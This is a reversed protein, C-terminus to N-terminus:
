RKLLPLYYIAGLGVNVIACGVAYWGPAAGPPLWGPRHAIDVLAHVVFAAALVGLAQRPDRVLVVFALALFGLALAVDVASAPRTQQWAAFGLYAGAVLVLMLCGLQLLRLEGILREPSDAPARLALWALWGAAGLLLAGAVALSALAGTV